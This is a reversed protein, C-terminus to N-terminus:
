ERSKREQEIKEIIETIKIQADVSSDLVFTLHPFYRIKMEKSAHVGIFGSASQLTDIALQRTKEDGIVSVFVKAYHLDQTVEVNTITILKPLHPNKVDKAIVDSIVEKLLSNLREIRRSM